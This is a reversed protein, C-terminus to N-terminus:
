WMKTGGFWNNDFQAMWNEIEGTTPENGAGFAATLDIIMFDDAYSAGVTNASTSGFYLHTGGGVVTRRVYGTHWEGDTELNQAFVRGDYMGTGDSLAFFTGGNSRNYKCIAIVDHGTEIAVFQRCFGEWGTTVFQGDIVDSNSVFAWGTEGNSFDGNTLLNTLKTWPPLNTNEDCLLTDGHYIKPIDHNGRYIKIPTEGHYVYM